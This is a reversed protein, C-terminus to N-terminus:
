AKWTEETILNDTHVDYMEVAAKADLLQKLDKDKAIIRVRLDPHEKRLRTVLTAIVDDAEFGESGLLPVGIETLMAIARDIQAPLAEPIPPRQAKYEPYLQSRFTGTDGSVDLAVVVYDPKGGAAAMHKGEGRLLKLMMGVFGFTMNTPEKTVPSSMPTRIAHFARFFQGYGDIIYLTPM